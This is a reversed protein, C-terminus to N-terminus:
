SKHCARLRQRQDVGVAVDRKALRDSSGDRMDAPQQVARRADRREKGVQIGDAPPVTKTREAGIRKGGGPTAHPHEIRGAQDSDLGREKRITVISIFYASAGANVAVSAIAATEGPSVSVNRGTSRLVLRWWATEPPAPATPSRKGAPRGRDRARDRALEVPSMGVGVILEDDPGVRRQSRLRKENSTVTALSIAPM